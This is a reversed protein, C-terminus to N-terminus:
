HNSPCPPLNKIDVPYKWRNHSWLWISPNREITEQLMAAYARTVDGPKTDAVNEALLRCTIRYHGRSLKEMDWYVAAMNLRSALHETGSIFATPLGLFWTPVTPDGHSPKQDSMFGTTSVIGQQKWRLLTRLTTAKPVSVSNFRSRIKLMISDFAKNRLPRYIQAYIMDASPPAATHLTVSPAWEWNGIHAFYIAISRGQSNLRDILGVNKFEMRQLMQKDSIHLLKIIEVIYDAFNRYFEHAIKNCKDTSKKPFCRKINARVTTRRYRLIHCMIFGLIDAVAYLIPFPLRALLGFFIKLLATM